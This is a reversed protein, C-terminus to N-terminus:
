AMAFEHHGHVTLMSLGMGIHHNANYFYGRERDFTTGCCYIAEGTDTGRTEPCLTRHKSM